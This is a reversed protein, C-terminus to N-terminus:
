RGILAKALDDILSTMVQANGDRDGPLPAGGRVSSLRRGDRCLAIALTVSRDSPEGGGVQRHQCLSIGTLARDPQYAVEVTLDGLARRESSSFRLGGLGAKEAQGSLAQLLYADVTAGPSAQFVVPITSPPGSLIAHLAKHRYETATEGTEDCGTLLVVALLLPMLYRM